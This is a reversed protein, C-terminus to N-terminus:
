HIWTSGDWSQQVGTDYNYRWLRFDTPPAGGDSDKCYAFNDTPNYSVSLCTVGVPYAHNVLILNPTIDWIILTLSASSLIYARNRINDVSITVYGAGVPNNIQQVFVGTWGSYLKFKNNIFDYIVYRGDSFVGIGRVNLGIAWTNIITGTRDISVISNNTPVRCGVVVRDIVPDFDGPFLGVGGGLAGTPLQTRGSGDKATRWLGGQPNAPLWSDYSEFFYSPQNKDDIYALPTSSTGNGIKQQVGFWGGCPGEIKVINWRLNQNDSLFIRFLSDVLFGYTNLVTFYNTPTIESVTCPNPSSINGLLIKSVQSNATLPLLILILIIIIFVRM